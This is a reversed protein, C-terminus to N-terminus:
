DLQPKFRENQLSHKDLQALQIPSICNVAIQQRYSAVLNTKVGKVENFTVKDAKQAVKKISYIGMM